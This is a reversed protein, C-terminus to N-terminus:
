EKVHRFYTDSTGVFDHNVEYVKDKWEKKSHISDELSLKLGEESAVLERSKTNKM